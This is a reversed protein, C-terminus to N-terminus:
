AMQQGTEAEISIDNMLRKLPHGTRKNKRYTSLKVNAQTIRLKGNSPSADM